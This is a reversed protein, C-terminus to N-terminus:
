GRSDGPSNTNPVISQGSPESSLINLKEQNLTLYRTIANIAEASRDSGTDAQPPSSSAVGVAVVAGTALGVVADVVAGTALGVVAGVVAGTALGVVAGVEAGAFTPGEPVSLMPKLSNNAKPLLGLSVSLATNNKGAGGGAFRQKLEFDVFFEDRLQDRLPSEIITARDPSELDPVIYLEVLAPALEGGIVDDEGQFFIGIFVSNRGPKSGHLSYIGRFAAARGLYIVVSQGDVGHSGLKVEQIEHNDGVDQLSDAFLVILGFSLLTAWNWPIPM